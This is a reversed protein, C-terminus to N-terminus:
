ICCNGFCINLYTCCCNFFAVNFPNNYWRLSSSVASDSSLASKSPESTPIPTNSPESASANSTNSTLSQPPVGESGEPIEKSETAKLSGKNHGCGALICLCLLIATPKLTNM